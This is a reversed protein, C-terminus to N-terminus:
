RKRKGEVREQNETAKGAAERSSAEGMTGQRTLESTSMAMTRQRTGSQLPLVGAPVGRCLPFRVNPIGHARRLREDNTEEVLMHEM